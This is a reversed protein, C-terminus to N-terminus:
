PKDAKDLAQEIRSIATVAFDTDRNHLCLKIAQIDMKAHLLAERLRYIEASDKSVFRDIGSSHRNRIIADQIDKNHQATM